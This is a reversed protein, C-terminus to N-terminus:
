CLHTKSLSWLATVGTLSSGRARRDRILCEVVSGSCEWIATTNTYDTAGVTQMGEYEFKCLSQECMSSTCRGNEHQQKKITKKKIYITTPPTM